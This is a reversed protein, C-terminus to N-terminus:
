PPSGPKPKIEALYEAETMGIRQQPIAFTGDPLKFGPANEAVGDLTIPYAEVGVSREANPDAKVGLAYKGVHTVLFWALVPEYFLPGGADDGWAVSWGPAAPVISHTSGTPYYM